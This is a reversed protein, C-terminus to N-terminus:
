RDQNIEFREGCSTDTCEYTHTHPSVVGSRRVYGRSRMQSRPINRLPAKCTPCFKVDPQPGPINAM